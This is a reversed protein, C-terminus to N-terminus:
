VRGALVLEINKSLIEFDIPKPLYLKIGFDKSSEESVNHSYGSCLIIPMGPRIKLVEQAMETGLMHPMTQDTIILDYGTPNSKFAALAAPSTRFVDVDYGLYQLRKRTIDLVTAEDDVVMIRATGRVLDEKKVEVQQIEQYVVPFYVQFITGAGPSSQMRILGGHEKVIGHVVALGMGTGSGVEKTTFFPDFIREKVTPDIGEGTDGVSLEVYQGPKAAQEGVLEDEALDKQSLGVTIVGKGTAIAQVANTCLNMVVQHIKMSDAMITGVESDINQKIEISSPITSRLLKLAERVIDSPVLPEVEQQDKRSFALIQRVLDKARMGGKKVERIEEVATEGQLNSLEALEAYGIVATLINNFDHAIGGALTGIAEMKQSQRLQVELREKEQEAQKKDSLDVALCVVAQIEGQRTAMVSSSFLMPIENGDKQRYFTEQKNINANGKLEVSFGDAVIMSFPQGLLEDEQYGLLALTTANVTEICGEANLVILSNTMAHFIRDVYEKSVTTNRLNQAMSNFSDVLMGVEGVANIDIKKSFNQQPLAQVADALKILPKSLYKSIFFVVVIILFFSVAFVMLLFRLVRQVDQYLLNEPISMCVKLFPVNEVIALNRVAVLGDQHKYVTIDTSSLTAPFPRPDLIVKGAPKTLVKGSQSFLWVPNEGFIKVSQTFAFFSRFNYDLIIAGGFEGIDPDTKHIGISFFYSGDPNVSLGAPVISGPRSAELDVFLRDERLSRYERSRGEKDAIVKEMGSSDIFRLREIGEFLRIKQLFLRELARTAIEQTGLTSMLFDDLLPNASLLKLERSLTAPISKQFTENIADIERTVAEDAYKSISDRSFLYYTTTLASCVLIFVSLFAILLRHFISLGSILSDAM